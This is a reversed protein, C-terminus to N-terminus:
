AATDVDLLRFAADNVSDAGTRWYAVWGRTLTPRSNAGFLHPIFEVSLGVRDYIVYNSFDGYVLIPNEATAAADFASDMASAEYVPAGLLEPVGGAGIAVWATSLDETGFQRMLNLISINAMWALSRGGNRYRPPLAAHVKYLDAIAFTEPTTPDVESSSDDLATVIGFPQGSGTGTFHATGELRDKADVIMSVVDNALNRYDQTIAVSGQVFADALHATISPQTFTPTGDAVQTNEAVWEATVGASSLGNWTDTTGTEVRAVQRMSNAVGNNALILTPDLNFPVAYGGNGDTLSMAARFEEVRQVATREEDTWLDLRKAMGKHFARQYVPNGTLLVLGPIQGVPDNVREIKRIVNEKYDDDVHEIKEVASVARSRMEDVQGIGFRMSNLDFPDESKNFRPAAARAGDGVVVERAANAIREARAAREELEVRADALRVGEAELEAYRVDQEETLEDAARLEELEAAIEGARAVVQTLNM